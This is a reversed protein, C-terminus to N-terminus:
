SKASAQALTALDARLGAIDRRLAAVEVQLAHREHHATEEASRIAERTADQDARAEADHEAQMAGVVVAIFLNLITFTAILIFPVFFVWAFPFQEMVPRVIGMSWSELTMIQFLSFMSAGIHGFWQPFEAAFLKTAMVAAIYFVLLLLAVIAGIGPSLTFTRDATLDARAGFAGFILNVFFAAALVAVAALLAQSRNM